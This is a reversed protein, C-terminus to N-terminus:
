PSSSSSRRSTVPRKRRSSWARLHRRYDYMSGSLTRWGYGEYRKLVDESFALTPRAKSPSRTRITSSSSSARRRPPGCPIGGGVAVGEMMDGDSALVYIYHDVITHKPTNFKAALMREAIAMGIANSIGQGLPGAPPKSGPRGHGMRPSGPHALGIPPLGQHGRPESRLRVSAAPFVAAHVRAGRFPRIQRPQAMPSRAALPESARRLRLAGLEACGLPLGPHGSNAKEVADISLSRVSNAVASLGQTNMDEEMHSFGAGTLPSLAYRGNKFPGINVCHTKGVHDEGWAEHIHGCLCLDVSATLLFDQVPRSGVHLGHSAGTSRRTAPRRTRFSCRSRPKAFRRLDRRLVGRPRRTRCSGPRASRLRPAAGSAWSASPGRLVGRAHLDIGREGICQRVGERDMNGAVALVPVARALIPDLIAQAEAAGGLHTM